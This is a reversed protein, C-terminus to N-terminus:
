CTAAAQAVWEGTPHVTVGALHVRRRDLEVIFLVSLRTLGVTEVTLFTVPWCGAAKLECSRQGGRGAAGLRRASGTGACSGGRQRRRCGCVWGKRCEEVIRVYGGHTRRRWACWWILLM